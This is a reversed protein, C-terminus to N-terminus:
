EPLNMKKLLANFRPDAHLHDLLLDVKIESLGGDRQQYARELWEFAKDKEGRWALAEAVQYAGDAAHKAILEDLAQQSEKAHGLSHEAMAVDTLRFAEIGIMRATALAEPANGELLRLIAVHHGGFSSEPSIELCRRLAERAGPYDRHFTLYQGLNSWAIASLPDIETARRGVAIAESLRGLRELLTAYNGQVKDSAPDLALAKELDVEAGNWDWSGNMRLVGRSAYSDAEPPALTVAREADAMAQRQGAPDGTSDALAYESLALSAYAAAYLPDLAIAKHFADIARRWGDVNGRRHFQKGLLYQNYAESNSSRYAAVAQAPALKAKLVEVVTAAIEDQVKFIDKIDRDYTRSWLHYGNDARILQVTVRLTNGAKRVSGELVHSVRLKQAISSVDDAKGKFAFSSTRAPVRLDQVQALLDILEESLGDSFYEQDKNESMDIFPLVAVSKEPIAGQPPTGAHITSSSTQTDAASRKSLWLKDVAFYGVGIVAVATILLLVRQTPRPAAPSPPLLRPTAVDPPVAPAAPSRLEGPAHAAEPSLLRLVREVFAPPVDRNHLRTWQVASFADPVDAETEPTDDVCVPVIFPRARGMLHTRQDALRWELRFYGETREQTHSSIIPLFLACDRIQRRIRQDWVDGGRLESQDFWVEVGAARLTDAIRRAAEADESAYSLFVARAPETM